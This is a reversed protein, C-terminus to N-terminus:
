FAGSEKCVTFVLEVPLRPFRALQFVSFAARSPCAYTKWDSPASVSNTYPQYFSPAVCPTRFASIARDLPVAPDLAVNELVPQHM